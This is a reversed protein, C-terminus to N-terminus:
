ITKGTVHNVKRINCTIVHCSVNPIGLNALGQEGKSYRVEEVKHLTVSVTIAFCDQFVDLLNKTQTEISKRSTLTNKIKSFM